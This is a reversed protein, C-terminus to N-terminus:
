SESARRFARVARDVYREFEDTASRPSKASARAVRGRAQSAARPFSLAQSDPTGYTAFHDVTITRRLAAEFEDDSVATPVLAEGVLEPQLRQPRFSDKCLAALDEQPWEIHEAYRPLDWDNTQLYACMLSGVTVAQSATGALTRESFLRAAPKWFERARDAEALQFEARPDQDSEVAVGAAVRNTTHLDDLMAYYLEEIQAQLAHPLLGLREDIQSATLTGHNWVEALAAYGLPGGQPLLVDFDSAMTTETSLPAVELTLPESSVNPDLVVCVLLTEPADPSSAIVIEGPGTVPSGDRNITSDTFEPRSAGVTPEERELPALGSALAKCRRCQKLHAELPKNEGAAFAALEALTPCETQAEFPTM